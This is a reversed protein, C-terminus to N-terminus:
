MHGHPPNTVALIRNSSPKDAFHIESNILRPSPSCGSAFATFQQLLFPKGDQDHEFSKRLMHMTALWLNKSDGDTPRTNDLVEVASDIIYSSYSTVISQPSFYFTLNALSIDLQPLLMVSVKLTGFFTALFKYFTTLRMMKGVRDNEPLGDTAWETLEIFIPRFITDNLKYIMNIAVGNAQTEVAEVEEEKYSRGSRPCFQVRRLDFAKLLFRKL